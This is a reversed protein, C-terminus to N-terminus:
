SLRGGICSNGEVSPGLRYRGLVWGMCVERLPNFGTLFGLEAKKCRCPKVSSRKFLYLFKM